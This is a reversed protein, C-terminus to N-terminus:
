HVDELLVILNQFSHDTGLTKEAKFETSTLVPSQSSLTNHQSLNM